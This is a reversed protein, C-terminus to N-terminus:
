TRLLARRLKSFYRCLACSQHFAWGSDARGRVAARNRPAEIRSFTNARRQSAKWHFGPHTGGPTEALTLSSPSTSRTFREVRNHHAAPNKRRPGSWGRGAANQDSPISAAFLPRTVAPFGHAKTELGNIQATISKRAVPRARSLAESPRPRSEGRKVLSIDGRTARSRGIPAIHENTRVARRVKIKCSYRCRHRLRRGPASPM